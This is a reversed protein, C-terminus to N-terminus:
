PNAPSVVINVRYLSDNWELRAGLSEAVFRLPVYMLGDVVEPAADLEVPQGNLMGTTSGPTLVANLKGKSLHLSSDAPNWSYEAQIRNLLVRFPVMTVDHEIYGDRNGTLTGNVSLQVQPKDTQQVILANSLLRGPKRLLKGQYYLASSAGGDLNIADTIGAQLLANAMQDLTSYSVTGVVLLQNDDVGAFSRVNAQSTVLPDNFRDREVDIDVVGGTLLKPGAGIAMQLQSIPISMNSDLNVSSQDMSFLDGVKVSKTVSDLTQDSSLLLVNGGAPIQIPDISFAAVKMDAAIAVKVGPYDIVDGYDKSFVWASKTRDGHYSDVGNLPLSLRGVRVSSSISLRQIAAEKDKSVTISTEKDGRYFLDNNNMLMGYPTRYDIDETFADFYTGNIGVVAENDSMMDIFPQVSGVQHNAAIAKVQVTPDKLNIRILELTYTSGEYSVNRKEHVIAHENAFVPSVAGASILLMSALGLKIAFQLKVVPMGFQLKLITDGIWDKLKPLDFSRYM